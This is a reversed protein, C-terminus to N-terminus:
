LGEMITTPMEYPYDRTVPPLMFSSVYPPMPDEVIALTARSTTPINAVPPLSVVAGPLLM